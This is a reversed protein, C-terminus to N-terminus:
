SMMEDRPGGARGWHPQLLDQNVACLDQIYPQLGCPSSFSEEVQIPVVSVADLTSYKTKSGGYLFFMLSNSHTWLLSLLIPLCNSYTVYIFPYVSHSFQTQEEQLPLFNLAPIM